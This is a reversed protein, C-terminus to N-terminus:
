IGKVEMETDQHEIEHREMLIEKNELMNPWHSMILSLLGMYISFVIATNFEVNNLVIGADYNFGQITNIM